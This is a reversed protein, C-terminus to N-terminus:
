ALYLSTYSVFLFCSRFSVDRELRRCDWVRCTGDNSASVFFAGNQPCDGVNNHKMSRNMAM